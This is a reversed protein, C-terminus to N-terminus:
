ATSHMAPAGVLRHVGVLRWRLWTGGDAAKAQLVLLHRGGGWGAGAVGPHHHKEGLRVGEIGTGVKRRRM